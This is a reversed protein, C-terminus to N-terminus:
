RAKQRLPPISINSSIPIPSSSPPIPPTPLYLKHSPQHSPLHPSNPSPHASLAPQSTPSPHNPLKLLCQLIPQPEHLLSHPHIPIFGPHIPITNYVKIATINVQIFVRVRIELPHHIVYVAVMPRFKLCHRRSIAPKRSAIVHGGDFFLWGMLM